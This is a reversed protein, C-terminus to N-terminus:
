GTRLRTPRAHPTVERTVAASTQAAEATKMEVYADLASRAIRVSRGIHITPLEARAVMYRVTRASLSLADAAEEITVLLKEAV